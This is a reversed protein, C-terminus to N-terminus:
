VGHFFLNALELLGLAEVADSWGLASVPLEHCSSLLRVGDHSRDNTCNNLVFSTAEKEGLSGLSFAEAAKPFKGSAFEFRALRNLRGGDAFKLLFEEYLSLNELNELLDFEM